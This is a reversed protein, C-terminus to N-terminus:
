NRADSLIHDMTDTEDIDTVLPAMIYLGCRWRETNPPARSFHFILSLHSSFFLPICYFATSACRSDHSTVLRQKMGYIQRSMVGPQWKCSTSTLLLDFYNQNVAFKNHKIIGKNTHPRASSLEVELNGRWVNWERSLRSTMRPQWATLRTRCPLARSVDAISVFLSVFRDSALPLFFLCLAWFFSFLIHVLWTFSIIESIQRFVFKKLNAESLSFVFYFSLCPGEFNCM